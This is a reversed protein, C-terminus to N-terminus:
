KLHGMHLYTSFSPVHCILVHMGLGPSPNIEACSGVEPTPAAVPIVVQSLKHYHIILRQLVDTKKVMWISSNFPSPTPIVQAQM